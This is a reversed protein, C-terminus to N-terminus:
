FRLTRQSRDWDTDAEPCTLGLVQFRIHDGQRIGFVIESLQDDQLHMAMWPRVGGNLLPVPQLSKMGRFATIGTGDTAVAPYEDHGRQSPGFGTGLTLPILPTGQGPTPNEPTPTGGWGRHPSLAAWGLSDM